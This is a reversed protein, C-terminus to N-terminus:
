GGGIVRSAMAAKGAGGRYRGGRERGGPTRPGVGRVEGLKM